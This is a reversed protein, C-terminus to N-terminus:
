DPLRDALRDRHVMYTLMKLRVFDGEYFYYGKFRGLRSSSNSDKMLFWDREGRRCFGVAHVGHDDTTAECAIRYERSGQDIFVGPIDWSPIVAAGERGDVGPESTDGGISVTYGAQVAEKFVTYFDELPLNLYAASRRWNDPVDFLAYGGFPAAMTSQVLVYDDMRLGLVQDRLDMPSCARGEWTCTEPPRGWYSDLIGRVGAVVKEEDWYGHEAVWDLYHRLERYAFTHDHREEGPPLGPYAEATMAGYLRYIERVGEDESGQEFLSHGYERVFRRAKEVYEWYVVWIESLKIRRGTLRFAESEFFSVSCFSWCTGTNYQPVPPLHFATAFDDPSEPKDIASWDLRLQPRERGRREDEERYREDVIRQLSDRRAQTAERAKRMEDFLPYAYPPRYVPAPTPPQTTGAGAPAVAGASWALMVGPVARAWRRLRGFRPPIWAM